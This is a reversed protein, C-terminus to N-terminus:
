SSFIVLDFSILDMQGCSGASLSIGMCILSHSSFMSGLWGLPFHIWVEEWHRSRHRYGLWVLPSHVLNERHFFSFGFSAAVCSPGWTYSSWKEELIPHSLQKEASSWSSSTDFVGRGTIRWKLARHELCASNRRFDEMKSWQSTDSYQYLLMQM